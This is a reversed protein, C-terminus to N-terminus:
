PAGEESLLAELIQVGLRRLGDEDFIWNMAHPVKRAATDAEGFSTHSGLSHLRDGCWGWYNKSEESM